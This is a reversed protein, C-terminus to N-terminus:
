YKELKKKVFEIPNISIMDYLSSNQYKVNSLLKNQFYINKWGMDDKLSFYGLIIVKKIKNKCKCIIFAVSIYNKKWERRIHTFILIQLSKLINLLRLIVM